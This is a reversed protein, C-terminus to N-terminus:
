LFYIKDSPVERPHRVASRQRGAGGQQVGTLFGGRDQNVLLHFGVQCPIQKLEIYLCLPLCRQIAESSIPM